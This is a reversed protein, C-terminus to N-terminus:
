NLVIYFKNMCNEENKFIQKFAKKISFYMVLVKKYKKSIYLSLFKVKFFFFIITM